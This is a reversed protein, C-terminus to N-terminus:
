PDRIVDFVLLLHQFFSALLHCFCDIEIHGFLLHCLVALLLPPLDVLDLPSHGGETNPDLTSRHRQISTLGASWSTCLGRAQWLPRDVVATHKAGLGDETMPVSVTHSMRLDAFIILKFTTIGAISSTNLNRMQAQYLISIVLDMESIIVYIM